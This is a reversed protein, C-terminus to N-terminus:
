QSCSAVCSQYYVVNTLGSNYDIECLRVCVEHEIEEKLEQADELTEQWDVAEVTSVVEAEITAVAEGVDSLDQGGQSFMALTAVIAIIVFCATIIMAELSTAGHQNKLLHRIRESLSRCAYHALMLYYRLRLELALLVSSLLLGKPNRKYFDLRFDLSQPVRDWLSLFRLLAAIMKFM